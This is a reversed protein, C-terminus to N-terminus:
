QLAPTCWCRDDCFPEVDPKGCDDCSPSPASVTTYGTFALMQREVTGDASGPTDQADIGVTFGITAGSIPPPTTTTPLLASWPLDLEIEWGDSVIRGAYYSPNLSAPVPVDCSSTWVFARAGIAGSPPSAIVHLAGADTTGDFTGGKPTFGAVYLELADGEQLQQSGNPQVFIAGDTVHVHIHLGDSSSAARVTAVEKVDAASAGRYFFVRTAHADITQGPLACFEDGVGDVVQAGTFAPLTACFDITGNAPCSPTSADPVIAADGADVDGGAHFDFTPFGCGALLLAGAGWHMCRRHM